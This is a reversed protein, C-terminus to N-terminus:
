GSDTTGHRQGGRAEDGGELRDVVVVRRFRSILELWGGFWVRARARTGDCIWGAIPDAREIQVRLGHDDPGTSM